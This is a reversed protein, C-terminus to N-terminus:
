LGPQSAEDFITINDAKRLINDALDWIVFFHRLLSIVASWILLADNEHLNCRVLAHNGISTVSIYFLKGPIRNQIPKCCRNLLSTRLTDAFSWIHGINLGGKRSECLYIHLKTRTTKNTYIIFILNQLQNLSLFYNALGSITVLQLRNVM